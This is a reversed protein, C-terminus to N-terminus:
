IYLVTYVYHNRSIYCCETWIIDSSGFLALLQMLGDQRVVVVSIQNLMMLVAGLIQPDNYTM